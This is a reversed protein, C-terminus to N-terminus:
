VWLLPCCIVSSVVDLQTSALCAEVAAAERPAEWAARLEALCKMESLIPDMAICSAAIQIQIKHM